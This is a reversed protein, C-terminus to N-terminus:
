AGRGADGVEGLAALMAATDIYAAFRVVRGERVTWVHVFAVDIAAGTRRARGRLRGTVAVEDGAVIFQAPAPVAETHEGLIRFFTRAGAHGRHVGGWPLLPTQVIEVAADLPAFVAAADGAAYAEYARRVLAEAESV